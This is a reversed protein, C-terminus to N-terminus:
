GRRRTRLLRAARWFFIGAIVAFGAIVVWFSAELIGEGIFSAGGLAVLLAIGGCCLMLVGAIWSEPRRGRAPGERRDVDM